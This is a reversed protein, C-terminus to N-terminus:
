RQTLAQIASRLRDHETQLIKQTSQFDRLIEIMRTIEVVPKVNSGELFGQAAMTNEAPISPDDSRYVNNGMAELNQVNDFEVIMLQGLEGDQNSIVGREDISLELSNDPINIPGGQGMVPFGAMTVLTGDISRQFNGDRTYVTEGTPGQIGMFGPGNLAVNYPNNTQEQSGPDTKQYEGRDYAFSLPDDGYRPDSIYEEFVVNQARFGTTNMNAVNNAVIDMNTQLTMQRSLALYISNEM